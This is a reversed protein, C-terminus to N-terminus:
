LVPFKHNLRRNAESSFGLEMTEITEITSSYTSLYTLSISLSLGRLGKEKTM